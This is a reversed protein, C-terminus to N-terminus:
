KKRKVLNRRKIDDLVTILNNCKESELGFDQCIKLLYDKQIKGQQYAVGYEQLCLQFNLGRSYHILLEQGKPIDETAVIIVKDGDSEFKVNQENEFCAHNIFRTFNGKTIADIVFPTKGARKAGKKREVKPEVLIQYNQDRKDATKIDLIEGIYEGIVKGQRVTELTFVGLGAEPINSKRIELFPPIEYNNNKQENPKKTPKSRARKRTSPSRSKSRSRKPAM